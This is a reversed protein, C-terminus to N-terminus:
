DKVNRFMEPKLGEMREIVVEDEEVGVAHPYLKGPPDTDRIFVLMTFGAGNFVIGEVVWSRRYISLVGRGHESDITLKDYNGDSETHPFWRSGRPAYEWGPPFIRGDYQPNNEVLKDYVRFGTAMARLGATVRLAARRKEEEAAKRRAARLLKAAEHETEGQVTVGLDDDTM